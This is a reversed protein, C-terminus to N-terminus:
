KIEGISNFGVDVYASKSSKVIEDSVAKIQIDMQAITKNCVEESLELIIESCIRRGEQFRAISISDDPSCSDFQSVYDAMKAELRAKVGAMIHSTQPSLLATRADRWFQRKKALADLKEQLEKTSM